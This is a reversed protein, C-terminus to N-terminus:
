RITLSHMAFTRIVVCLTYSNVLSLRQSLLTSPQSYDNRKSGTRCCASAYSRLCSQPPGFPTDLIFEAVKYVYHGFNPPALAGEAGGTGVGIAHGVNWLLM